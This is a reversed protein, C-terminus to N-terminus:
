EDGMVYGLPKFRELHDFIVKAIAVLPVALITGVVGWLTGFAIVGFITFFPNLNVKAGVLFPEVVYSELFQAVGMTVLVGIVMGTGGQTVVAAVIALSGGVMNGLYPIVSLIAALIALFIGYKLGIIMFGISYVTALIGILVLKGVLYGQAIDLMDDMASRATDEKGDHTIKLIFKKFRFREILLFVLYVLILVLSGLTGVFSGAVGTARETLAGFIKNSDITMRKNVAETSMGTWQVVYGQANEWQIQLQEQISTWDDAFASAQTIIALLLILGISVVGMVSIGISLGESVGWKNLKNVVPNLMMALVLAIALPTLLGAGLYLITPIGLILFVYLCIKTLKM